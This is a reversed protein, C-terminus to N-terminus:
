SPNAFSYNDTMMRSFIKRYSGSLSIDKWQRRM